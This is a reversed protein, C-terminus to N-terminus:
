DKKFPPGTLSEFVMWIRNTYGTQWAAIQVVLNFYIRATVPGLM